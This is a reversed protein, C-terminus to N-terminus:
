LLSLTGLTYMKNMVISHECLTCEITAQTNPRTNRCFTLLIQFFSFRCGTVPQQSSNQCADTSKLLATQISRIRLRRIRCANILLASREASSVEISSASALTSASLTSATRCDSASIGKFNFSSQASFASAYAHSSIGSRADALWNQLALM